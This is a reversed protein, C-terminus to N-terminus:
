SADGGKLRHIMAELMGMAEGYLRIGLDSELDEDYALVFRHYINEAEQCIESKTSDDLHLINDTDNTSVEPSTETPAPAPENKVRKNGKAKVSTKPDIQWTGVWRSVTSQAFGTRRAIECVGVGKRYLDRVEAKEEDTAAGRVTRAYGQKSVTKVDDGILMAENDQKHAVDRALEEFTKEM